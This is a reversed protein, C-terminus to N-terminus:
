FLCTRKRNDWGTSDLERHGVPLSDGLLVIRGGSIGIDADFTDAATAVRAHRIVLDLNM